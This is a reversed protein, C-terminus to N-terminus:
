VFAIRATARLVVCCAWFFCLLHCYAVYASREELRVTVIKVAAKPQVLANSVHRSWEFFQFRFVKLNNILDPFVLIPLENMHLFVVTM